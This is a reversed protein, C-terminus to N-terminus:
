KKINNSNELDINANESKILDYIVEVTKTGWDIAQFSRLIKVIGPMIRFAALM